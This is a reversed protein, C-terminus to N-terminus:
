ESGRKHKSIRREKKTVKISLKLKIGVLDFIIKITEIAFGFLILAPGLKNLITLQLNYFIMYAWLLFSGLVVYTNINIKTFLIYTSFGLMSFFILASVMIEFPTLDGNIVLSSSLVYFILSMMFVVVWLVDVYLPKNM